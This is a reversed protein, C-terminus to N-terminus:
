HWLSGNDVMDRTTGPGAVGGNELRTSVPESDARLTCSKTELTVQTQAIM